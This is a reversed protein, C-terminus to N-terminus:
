LGYDFLVLQNMLRKYNRKLDTNIEERMEVFKDYIMDVIEKNRIIGGIKYRYFCARSHSFDNSEMLMKSSNFECMKYSDNRCFSDNDWKRVHYRIYMTINDNEWRYRSKDTADRKFFLSFTITFDKIMDEMTVSFDIDLHYESVLIQENKTKCLHLKEVNKKCKLEKTLISQEEYPWVSLEKIKPCVAAITKCGEKKMLDLKMKAHKFSRVKKTDLYIQKNQRYLVEMKAM